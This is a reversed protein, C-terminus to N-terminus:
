TTVATRRKCHHCFLELTEGDEMREDPGLFRVRAVPVLLILLTRNCRRCRVQYRPARRQETLLPAPTRGPEVSVVTESLRLDVM